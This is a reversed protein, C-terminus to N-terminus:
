VNHRKDFYVAPKTM